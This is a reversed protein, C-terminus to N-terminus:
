RMQGNDALFGGILYPIGLKELVSTVKLTVEVPENQVSIREM